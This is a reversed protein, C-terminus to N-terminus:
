NISPIIQRRLSTLSGGAEVSGIVVVLARSGTGNVVGRKILGPVVRVDIMVFFLSDSCDVVGMKFYVSVAGTGVFGEVGFISQHTVNSLPTVTIM